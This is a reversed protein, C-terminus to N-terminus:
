ETMDIRTSYIIAELDSDFKRDVQGSTGGEAMM